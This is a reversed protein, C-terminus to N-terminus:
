PNVPKPPKALSAELSGAESPRFPLLSEEYSDKWEKIEANTAGLHPIIFDFETKPAYYINKYAWLFLNDHSMVTIKDSPLVLVAIHAFCTDIGIYHSAHKTIELAEGLNTKNSLNILYNSTPVPDNGTTLVVGYTKTKELHNLLWAWDKDKFKRLAAIEPGVVADSYPCVVTYESPLKFQSISALKYKVFSSYTFPQPNPFKKFVSWDEVPGNVKHLDVSCGCLDEWHRFPVGPAVWTDWLSVHDVLYPFSPLKTFLPAMTSRARAAWYMRSISKRYEDTFTAELVIIDGIGGTWLIQRRM